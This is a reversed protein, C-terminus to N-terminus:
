LIPDLWLLRQRTMTSKIDYDLKQDGVDHRCLTVLQAALSFLLSYCLLRTERKQPQSRRLTTLSCNICLLLWHWGALSSLRILMCKHTHIWTHRYMYMHTHLTYRHPKSSFPQMDAVCKDDNASPRLKCSDFQPDQYKLRTCYSPIITLSLAFRYVLILVKPGFWEYDCQRPQHILKMNFVPASKRQNKHSISYNKM